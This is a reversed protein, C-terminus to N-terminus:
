RQTKHPLLGLHEADKRGLVADYPPSFCSTVFFRTDRPQQDSNEESRWKLDVYGDVGEIDTRGQEYTAAEKDLKQIDVGLRQTVLKQSIVSHETSLDYSLIAPRWAKTEDCIEIPVPKLM